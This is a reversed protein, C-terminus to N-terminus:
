RESCRGATYPGHGLVRRLQALYCDAFARAAEPGLQPHRYRFALHLRDDVTIAGISLGLPMRAPASFWMASTEGAAGFAPPDEVRGLNSLMATDAFRQDFVRILAQQIRLPVLWSWSLLELLSTGRGPEEKRSTQTTVADLAAAPSTRQGPHTSIRAPLSFNGVMEDRLGDPRLNSPVLVTIRRCPARHQANWTAIALHLAAVLPGNVSGEHDLAALAQTEEVSLRVPHFGYGPMARGQHPFLRAPPALLERLREALALYRRARMWASPAAHASMLDRSAELNLEPVADATGTYARAISLLLRVGGIGDTATHNLNVLLADGDPKRALLVRLAPAASIPVATSYLEARATALAAEDTYDGVRLPDVDLVPRIEWYNHVKSPGASAERAHALPHRRLAEGLAQRLRAEDVRGTVHVELQISWPEAPTDLLHVVEDVLNFPILQATDDTEPTLRSRLREIVQEAAHVDGRDARSFGALLEADIEVSDNAPEQEDDQGKSPLLKLADEVMGSLNHSAIRWFSYRAEGDETFRVPSFGDIHARARGRHVVIHVCKKPVTERYSESLPHFLRGVVTDRYFRGSAELTRLFAAQDEADPLASGHPGEAPRQEPM